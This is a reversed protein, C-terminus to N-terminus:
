IAKKEAIIGTLTNISQILNAKEEKEKALLNILYDITSQQKNVFESWYTNIDNHGTGSEVSIDDTKYYGLDGFKEELMSLQSDSISKGDKEIAAINPQGCGLIFAVDTQTLKFDKRFKKLNFM